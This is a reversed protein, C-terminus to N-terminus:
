VVEADAGVLEVGPRHEVLLPVSLGALCPFGAQDLVELVRVHEVPSLVVVVRLYQVEM